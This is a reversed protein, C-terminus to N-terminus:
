DTNLKVRFICGGELHHWRALFPCYCNSWWSKTNGYRWNLTDISDTHCRHVREVYFSIPSWSKQVFCIHMRRLKQNSCVPLTNTETAHKIRYWNAKVLWSLYFETDIQSYFFFGWCSCLMYVSIWPWTSNPSLCVLSLSLNKWLLHGLLCLCVRSHASVWSVFVPERLSHCCSFLSLNQWSCSEPVHTATVSINQQLHCEPALYLNCSSSHLRYRLTLSPLYAPLLTSALM